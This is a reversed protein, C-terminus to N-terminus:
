FNMARDAFSVGMVTLLAWPIITQLSYAHLPQLQSGRKERHEAFQVPDFVDLEGSVSIELGNKSLAVHLSMSKIQQLIRGLVDGSSHAYGTKYAVHGLADGAFQMSFADRKRLARALSGRDLLAITLSRDVGRASAFGSDLVELGPADTFTISEHDLHTSVFKHAPHILSIAFEPNFL